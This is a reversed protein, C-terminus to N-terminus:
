GGKCLQTGKSFSNRNKRYEGVVVQFQIKDIRGGFHIKFQATREMKRAIPMEQWSQLRKRIPRRPGRHGLTWVTVGSREQWKGAVEWQCNKLSDKSCFRFKGMASMSISQDTEGELFSKNGLHLFYPPCVAEMTCGYQPKNVSLCKPQKQDRVLGYKSNRTHVARHFVGFQTNALKRVGSTNSYIELLQIVLASPLPM